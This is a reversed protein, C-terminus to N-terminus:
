LPANKYSFKKEIYNSIQKQRSFQKFLHRSFLWGHKVPRGYARCRGADQKRLVGNVTSM